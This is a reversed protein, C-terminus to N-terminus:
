HLCSTSRPLHIHFTLRQINSTPTGPQLLSSTSLHFHSTPHHLSSASLGRHFQPTPRQHDSTPISLQRPATPCYTSTSTRRRLSFAPPRLASRRPARENTGQDNTLGVVNRWCFTANEKQRPSPPPQPPPPPFAPPPRVQVHVPTPTPPPPTTRVQGPRLRRHWFRTRTSLIIPLAATCIMSYGGGGGGGMRGTPGDAYRRRHSDAGDGFGRTM